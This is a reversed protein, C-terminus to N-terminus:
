ADNVEPMPEAELAAVVDEWSDGPQVLSLWAAARHMSVWRVRWWAGDARRLYVSSRHVCMHGRPAGPPCLCPSLHLDAIGDAYPASAFPRPDDM